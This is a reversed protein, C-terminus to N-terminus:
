EGGCQYKKADLMVCWALLDSVGGATNFADVIGTLNANFDKIGNSNDANIKTTIETDATIESYATIQTEMTIESIDDEIEELVQEKYVKVVWFQTPSPYIFVGNELKKLLMIFRYAAESDHWAKINVIARKLHQVKMGFRFIPRFQVLGVNAIDCGNFVKAIFGATVNSRVSSIHVANIPFM